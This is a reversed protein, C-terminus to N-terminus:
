VIGNPGHDVVLKAYTHEEVFDEHLHVYGDDAHTTGWSNKIIFIRVFGRQRTADPVLYMEVCAMAHSGRRLGGPASYIRTGIDEFAQDVVFAITCARRRRLVSEVADASGPGDPLQSADKVLGVAQARFVDDYPIATVNEPIEPYREETTVGRRRCWAIMANLSSGEDRLPERPRIELQAGAYLASVSPFPIPVGRAGADVYLVEGLVHACCNHAIQARVESSLDRVSPNLTTDVSAGHFEPHDSFFGIPANPECLHGTLPRFPRSAARSM